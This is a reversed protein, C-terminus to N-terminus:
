KFVAAAMGPAGFYPKGLMVELQNDGNKGHSLRTQHLAVAKRGVTKKM